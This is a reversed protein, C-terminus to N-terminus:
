NINQMLMQEITSRYCLSTSFGGLDLVLGVRFDIMVNTGGLM